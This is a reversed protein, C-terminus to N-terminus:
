QPEVGNSKAEQKEAPLSHFLGRQIPLGIADRVINYALDFGQRRDVDWAAYRMAMSLAERHIGAQECRERAAKADANALDRGAQAAEIAAVANRITNKVDTLNHGIEPTHEGM